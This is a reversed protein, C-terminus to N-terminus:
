RHAAIPQDIRLFGVMRDGTKGAHQTHCAGARVGLARPWGRGACQSVLREGVLDLLDMGAAAPGIAGWAHVGLQPQTQVDPNTALPDGSEHTVRSQLAHMAAPLAPQGAAIGLSGRRGVQDLAVESWWCWVPQPHGVDGM